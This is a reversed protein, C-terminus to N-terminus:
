SRARGEGRVSSMRDPIQSDVLDMLAQHTHVDLKLYIHRVHTKATFASIQLKKQIYEANRGRALYPLIEAERPTLGYEAAVTACADELEREKRSSGIEGGFGWLFVGRENPIFPTALALTSVIILAIALLWGSSLTQHAVFAPQLAITAAAAAVDAFVIEWSLILGEVHCRPALAECVSTAVLIFIAWGAAVITGIAYYEPAGLAAPVVLGLPVLLLFVRTDFWEKALATVVWSLGVMVVLLVLTGLALPVITLDGGGAPQAIVLSLIFGFLAGEAVSVALAVPPARFKRSSSKEPQSDVSQVPAPTLLAFFPLVVGLGACAAPAVVALVLLLLGVAAVLFVAGTLSGDAIRREVGSLLAAWSVMFYGAAAGRLVSALGLMWPMLSASFLGLGTLGVLGMGLSMLVVPVWRARKRDLVQRARERHIRAMLITAACVAFLLVRAAKAAGPASLLCPFLVADGIGMLPFWACALVFRLYWVISTRGSTAIASLVRMRNGTAQLYSVM